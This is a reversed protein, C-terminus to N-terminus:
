QSSTDWIYLIFKTNDVILPKSVFDSVTLYKQYTLVYNTRHDPLDRKGNIFVDILITNKEWLTTELM